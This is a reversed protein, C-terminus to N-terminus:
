ITTIFFLLEKDLIDNVIPLTIGDIDSPKREDTNYEIIQFTSSLVKGMLEYLKATIKPNKYIEEIKAFTESPEIVNQEKKNLSKKSAMRLVRSSIIYPMIIMGSKTLIRKAAIILKIYDEQNIFNMILPDGFEKFFMYGVLQMQFSNIIPKGNDTLAKKYHLIEDNSFPGYLVEIRKVTQEACVKAQIYLAEDRKTIRSEFKDFESNQDEDRNSSSLKTFPYEYSIGTVKYKLCQRNSFYNFNIIHKDFTYKPLIQLIIDIVSDQTHTTTNVGRIMNKEWLKRDPNKSKNVVSTATENLKNYIYIGQEEEYKKNCLDFLTLMFLQIDENKKIFHLYMYHTALPIYMNTLLSIEYLVKAHKDEFQLNPTKNNNSSLHMLYNDDVFKKIYNSLKGNRIIYRNIDNILMDQTYNANYDMLAKIKYMVMLLEKDHDYWKLFYNLYKCIHERTEDSNYSRKANMAFCDISAYEEGLNFFKSIPLIIEGWVNRFIMDEEAIPYQETGWEDVPIHVDKKVLKAMLM